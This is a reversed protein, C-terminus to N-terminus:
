THIEETWNEQGISKLYDTALDCAKGLYDLDGTLFFPLDHLVTMIALKQERFEEPETVFRAWNVM